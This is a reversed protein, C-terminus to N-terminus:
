KDTGRFVGKAGAATGGFLQNVLKASQPYTYRRMAEWFKDQFLKVIDNRFSQFVPGVLPRPPTVIVYGMPMPFGLAAYYRQEQTTRISYTYGETLQKCINVIRDSIYNDIKMKTVTGPQNNTGWQGNAGQPANVWAVRKGYIGAKFGFFLKGAEEDLTYVLLNALSGWPRLIIDSKSGESKFTAGNLSFAQFADSAQRSFPGYKKPTGRPTKEAKVIKTMKALNTIQPWSPLGNPNATLKKAQNKLNFGISKMASNRAKMNIGPLASMFATLAQLESTDVRLLSPTTAMGSM